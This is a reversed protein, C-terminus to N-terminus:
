GELRISCETLRQQWVRLIVSFARRHPSRTLSEATLATATVNGGLGTEGSVGRGAPTNRDEQEGPRLGKGLFSSQPHPGPPQLLGRPIALAVRGGSAGITGFLSCYHGCESEVWSFTPM